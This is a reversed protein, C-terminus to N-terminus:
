KSLAQVIEENAQVIEKNTIKKRRYEKPCIHFENVFSRTFYSHDNFGVQYAIQSISWDTSILYEKSKNLRLYRIYIAPSRGTSKKIKRYVQADSLRLFLCLDKNSFTPDELNKNIIFNVEDIFTYFQLHFFFPPLPM